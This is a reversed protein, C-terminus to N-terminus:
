DPTVDQEITGVRAPLPMMSLSWCSPCKEGGKPLEISRTIFSIWEESSGPLTITSKHSKSCNKRHGRHRIALISRGSCYSNAAFFTPVLQKGPMRHTIM